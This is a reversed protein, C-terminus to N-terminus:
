KDEICEEPYQINEDDDLSPLQTFPSDSNWYLNLQPQSDYTQQCMTEVERPEGVVEFAKRAKEIKANDHVEDCDKRLLVFEILWSWLGM